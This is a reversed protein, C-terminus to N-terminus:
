TALMESVRFDAELAVKVTTSNGLEFGLEISSAAQMGFKAKSAVMAFEQGHNRDRGGIREERLGYIGLVKVGLTTANENAVEMAQRLADARLKSAVEKAKEFNWDLRTLESKKRAALSRFIAPLMELEVNKIRLRYEAFSSRVLASLSSSISVSRLKIQREEVGIQKLEEVLARVEKAKKLAESGAFLSDGAIKINLDASDADVEQEAITRVSITDPKSM